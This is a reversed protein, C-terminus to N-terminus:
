YCIYVFRLLVALTKISLYYMVFAFHITLHMVSLWFEFGNLFRGWVLASNLRSSSLLASVGLCSIPAM